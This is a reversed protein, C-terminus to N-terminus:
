WALEQLKGGPMLQELQIGIRGAIWAQRERDDAFGQARTEADEIAGPLLQGVLARDLSVLITPATV